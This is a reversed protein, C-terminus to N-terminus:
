GAPLLAPLAAGAVFVEQPAEHGPVGAAVTVARCQVGAAAFLAELDAGWDTVVLSGATTVPDCHYEPPLQHVPGQPGFEVRRATTRYMARPVTFVHLGGPALSRQIERIAALPDPVHELVDQTVVLDFSGAAFGQAGLDVQVFAGLRQLPQCGPLYYSAVAQRARRRLYDFSCLSPSSEHARLSAWPLPLQELLRVLARQRPVSGCRSCVPSERPNDGVAVLRAQQQCLPCHAVVAAANRWRWSRQWRKWVAECRLLPLSWRWAARRPTM